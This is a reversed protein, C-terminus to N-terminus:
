DHYQGFIEELKNKRYDFIEELKPQVLYPHFIQGIFGFPVVYDLLDIAEIGNNIEEFIHKHHWFKYPGFRQEDVFLKNEKVHSIETVWNMKINFLPSVKYKIIQGSYMKSKEPNVINFGMYDPTITKLNVPNSFFAWAEDITIPLKQSKKLRYIRM